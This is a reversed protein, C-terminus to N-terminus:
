VDELDIEEQLLVCWCEHHYQKGKDFAIYGSMKSDLDQCIVDFCRDCRPGASEKYCEYHYKFGKYAIWEGSFDDPNKKEDIALPEDCYECKPSVKLRYCESHYVKEDSLKFYGLPDDCMIKDFCKACNGVSKPRGKQEEIKSALRTLIVPAARRTLPPPAQEQVPFAFLYKSPKEDAAVNAAFGIDEYTPLEDIYGGVEYYTDNTGAM